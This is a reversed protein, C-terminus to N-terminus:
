GAKLGLPDSPNIHDMFPVKRDDDTVQNVMGLWNGFIAVGTDHWTNHLSRLILHEPFEPLPNGARMADEMYGCYEDLIATELPRFYHEPFPPYDDRKNNAFLMVERKYEKLLSISDYEPHGQFFIFKFKDESVAMHVNDEDDEALVHCGVQEFQERNMDNFRSHPADFKTNIGRLLPHDREEELVRHSYVGWRKEKLGIRQQEYKHQLVAHTALCSCLTSTVNDVAWDIVEILADWFPEEALNPRTVNAGTIILADLGEKRLQKFTEYFQDVHKRALEERGLEDISFPHVYFYAIQNSQGILTFFQRETATLAADPMMNLLGIHLERMDQQRADAADLIPLGEKKLRQFTPLDNHAVLPMTNDRQRLGVSTM